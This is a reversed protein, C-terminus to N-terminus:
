SKEDVEVNYTGKKLVKRNIMSTLLIFINFCIALFGIVMPTNTITQTGQTTIINTSFLNQSIGKITEENDKITYLANSIHNQYSISSSYIFILSNINGWILWNRLSKKM